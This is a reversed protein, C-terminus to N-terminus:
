VRFFNSKASLPTGHLIPKDFGGIAAFDSSIQPRFPRNSLRENLSSALHPDSAAYISLHIHFYFHAKLSLNVLLLLSVVGVHLPNHDGSLSIGAIPRKIHSM